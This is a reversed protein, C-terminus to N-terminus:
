GILKKKELHINMPNIQQSSHINCLYYDLDPPSRENNHHHIIYIDSIMRQPSKRMTAIGRSLLIDYSYTLGMGPGLTSDRIQNGRVVSSSCMVWPSCRGDNVASM